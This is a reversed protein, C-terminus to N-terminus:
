NGEMGTRIMRLIKFAFKYDSVLYGLCYIIQEMETQIKDLTKISRIAVDYAELINETPMVLSCKGCNRDCNEAKRVCESETKIVDIVEENTM